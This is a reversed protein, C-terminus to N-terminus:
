GAVEAEVLGKITELTRGAIAHVFLPGVIRDAYFKGVLPLRSVLDHIITTQVGDPGEELIWEVEMGRTPGGVHRYTIRGEDPLIEQIARWKCPWDLPGFDRVCHMRVLRGTEGAELIEVARYHPLIVPWREVEAAYAFV